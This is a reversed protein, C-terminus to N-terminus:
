FNLISKKKVINKKLKPVWSKGVNLCSIEEVKNKICFNQFYGSAGCGVDLVKKNKIMHGIKYNEDCYNLFNNFRNVIKRDNYTSHIKTFKKQDLLYSNM